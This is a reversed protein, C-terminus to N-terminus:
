PAATLEPLKRAQVAYTSRYTGASAAAARNFIAGILPSGAKELLEMADHLTRIGVRGAEVVVITGTTIGALITSDAVPLISPSDIIVVDFRQQLLGVVERMRNSSLLESPSDTPKGALLLMLGDSDWERLACDLEVSGELVEVLGVQEDIGLYRALTPLRLDGELLCVSKGSAALSAALNAAIVSKGEGPNSSTVVIAPNQNGAIASTLNVRIRRIQEARIASSRSRLAIPHKETNRDNVVSGLVPIEAYQRVQDETRVRPSSMERVIVSALGVVLGILVGILLVLPANPATPSTPVVASQVSELQIPVTGDSLKPALTVLSNQLSVAIANAIAAARTPSSDTVSLSIISTNLPVTAVVNKALQGVTLPLGLTEIVPALVVNKVAVVAYNRAQQQSYNGGQALDSTNNGGVSSLFLESEASYERDTTLVLASAAIVGLLVCSIVTLWRARLVKWLQRNDM